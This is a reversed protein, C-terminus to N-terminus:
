ATAEELENADLASADDSLLANLEAVQERLVANEVHLSAILASQDPTTPNPVPRQRRNGGLWPVILGAAIDDALGALEQETLAYPTDPEFVLQVRQEHKGKGITVTRRFTLAHGVRLAYASTKEKSMTEEWSCFLLPGM